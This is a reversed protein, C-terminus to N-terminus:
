LDEIPPTPTSQHRIRDLAAEMEDWDLHSWAGALALGAAIAEDTPQPEAGRRYGDVLYRTVDEGDQTDPVAVLTEGPRLILEAVRSDRTVV